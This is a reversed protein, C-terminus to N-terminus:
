GEYRPRVLPQARNVLWRTRLSVVWSWASAKASSLGTYCDASKSARSRDYHFLDDEARHCATGRYTPNLLSM